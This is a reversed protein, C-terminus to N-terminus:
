HIRYEAFSKDQDQGRPSCVERVYIRAWNGGLQLSPLFGM